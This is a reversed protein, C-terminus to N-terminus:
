NLFLIELRCAKLKSLKKLAIIPSSLEFCSNKAFNKPRTAERLGATQKAVGYFPNLYKKMLENRM